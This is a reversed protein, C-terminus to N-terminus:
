PAIVSHRCALGERYYFSIRTEVLGGSFWWIDGSFQWGPRGSVGSGAGTIPQNNATKRGQLM